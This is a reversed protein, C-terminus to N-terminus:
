GLFSKNRINDKMGYRRNRKEKKELALLERKMRMRLAEVDKAPLEPPTEKRKKAVDKIIGLYEENFLPNVLKKARGLQTGKSAKGKQLDLIFQELKVMEAYEPDERIKKNHQGLLMDMGLTKPLFYKKMKETTRKMRNEKPYLAEQQEQIYKLKDAKSMTEPLLGKPMENEAQAKLRLPIGKPQNLDNSKISQVSDRAKGKFKQYAVKCGETTIACFYTLNNKNAYEKVFSNWSSPPRKPM